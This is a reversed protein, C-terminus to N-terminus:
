AAAVRLRGRLLLVEDARRLRPFAELLLVLLLRRFVLVPVLERRPVADEPRARLLLPEERLRLPDPLVRLRLDLYAVSLTVGLSIRGEAGRKMLCGPVGGANM